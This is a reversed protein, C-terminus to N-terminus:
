LSDLSHILGKMKSHAVPVAEENNMLVQSRAGKNLKSVKHLNILHSQHVRYFNFGSLLDEYKKLPKSLLIKQGNELFFTTYNNDSQCRIVDKIRVVHVSDSTHLVIQKDKNDASNNVLARLKKLYAQEKLDERAKMLAKLLENTKYPKLLYDVASIRFARIAFEEYATLWIIQFDIKDLQSLLEFSNGDKLGIDMIIIDPNTQSILEKGEKVSIAEGVISLDSFYSEVIFRISDRESQEDEIIALKVPHQDSIELAM